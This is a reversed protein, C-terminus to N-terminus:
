GGDVLRGGGAHRGTREGAAAHGSEKRSTGEHLWMVGSVAVTFSFGKGSEVRCSLPFARQEEIAKQFADEHRDIGFLVPARRLVSAARGIANRAHGCRPSPQM